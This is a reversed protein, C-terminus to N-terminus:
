DKVIQVAMNDFLHNANTIAVSEDVTLGKLIEIESDNKLGTIVVKKKAINNEIVFVYSEGNSEIVASNPVIMNKTGVAIINAKATLGSVLNKNNEVSVEVPFYAGTSVSMVGINFISAKYTQEPYIDVFLDVSDGKKIYALADQSVTGKLKLTSLDVITFLPTGMSASEGININKNLVIGSIPSKISANAIQINILDMAATIADAASNVSNASTADATVSADYQNKALDYAKQSADLQVKAIVDSNFLIKNQELTSSANDLNIKAQVEAKVMQNQTGQFNAQLQKLQANLQSVDLNALIQGQSVTEGEVVNVESVKGMFPASLDIVKEPVLAGTITFIKEIQGTKIDSTKVKLLSDNESCGAMSLILTALVLTTIIKVSKKMM